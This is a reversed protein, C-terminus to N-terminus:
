GERRVRRVGGAGSPGKVLGRMVDAFASEDEGVQHCTEHENKDREPCTEGTSQEGSLRTERAGEDQESGVADQVRM